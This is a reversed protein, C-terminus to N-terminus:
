KTGLYKYGKVIELSINETNIIHCREANQQPPMVMYKCKDTNEELRIEKGAVVLSEENKESTSVSGGL